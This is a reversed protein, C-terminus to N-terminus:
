RRGGGFPVRRSSVRVEPLGYRAALVAVILATKNTGRDLAAHNLARLLDPPLRLFIQPSASVGTSRRGPIVLPFGLYEALAGIVVDSLSREVAAAEDAVAQKIAAPVNLLIARRPGESM